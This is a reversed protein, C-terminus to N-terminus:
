PNGPFSVVLPSEADVTVQLQTRRDHGTAMKMAKIEAPYVANVQKTGALGYQSDGLDVVVEQPEASYNYLVLGVAGDPARWMSGEVVPM